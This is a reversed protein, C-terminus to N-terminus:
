RPTPPSAAGNSSAKGTEQIHRDDYADKIQDQASGIVWGNKFNKGDFYSHGISGTAYEVQYVGVEWPTQESLQFWQSLNTM